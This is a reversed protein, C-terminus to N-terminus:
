DLVIFSFNFNVPAFFTAASHRCPRLRLPAVYSDFGYLVEVNKAKM